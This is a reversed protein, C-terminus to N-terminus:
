VLLDRGQYVTKVDGSGQALTARHTADVIWLAAHETDFQLAPFPMAAKCEADPSRMGADIESKREAPEDICSRPGLFLGVLPPKGLMPAKLLRFQALLSRPRQIFPAM